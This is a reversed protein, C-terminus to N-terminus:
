EQFDDILDQDGQGSNLESWLRKSVTAVTDYSFGRRLLYGSLRQRFAKHDLGKLARTKKAAAMYATQEEEESNTTLVGEIINPAVGKAYLEAKIARPGRPSCRLRNEQWFEAFAKDDVLQLERLRALVHDIVDPEYHKKALNRRVERDSRPRFSLYNFASDLAKQYTDDDLLEAIDRDTLLSGAKLKRGAREAVLTNLSFAYNGDLYINVRDKRKQQAEIATIVGAM